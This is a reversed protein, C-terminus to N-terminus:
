LFLFENCASRLAAVDKEWTSEDFDIAPFSCTEDAYLPYIGAVIKGRLHSEIIEESLPEYNKNTCSSCRKAPKPCVGKKWLNLCPPSYGSKKAKDWRKAYVDDRGKFLSMFLKIM